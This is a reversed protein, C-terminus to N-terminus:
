KFAIGKAHPNISFGGEAPTTIRKGAITLNDFLVDEVPHEPSFGAIESPPTGRGTFAVDKFRIARIHGRKPDTAWMDRGIAIRIFKARTAEVRIDEFAINSVTGADVAYVGLPAFLATLVDCNRFTVNHIPARTEYTIGLAYGWDNWITCGEALIESSEGEPRTAKVAISDDFNRIFCDRIEVRRSNVPNIGDSNLRGSVLKLDRAVVGESGVICVNWNPSDRLIIGEALIDRSDTIRILNRAAHPMDGGDLIGRGGIRVGEAKDVQLIAGSYHKLGTRKSVQPTEDPLIQGRVVAGGAIYVRQGSKLKTSGIKHIGPGFYLVSPDDPRPVDTELGNAFLHLAQRDSGDLLLTLKRPRDLEFRISQGEIAPQIGLSRPHISAAKFARAPRVAVQVKGQFDFYALSAVEAKCGMEHTWISGPPKAIEQRVKAQYVFVAQGNAEVAYDASPAEGEPAPYLRLSESATCTASMLLVGVRLLGRPCHRM